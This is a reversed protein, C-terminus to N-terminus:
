YSHYCVTRANLHSNQTIMYPVKLNSTGSFVGNTQASTLKYGLLGIEEQPLLSSTEMALNRCAAVLIYYLITLILKFQKSIYAKLIAQQASININLNRKKGPTEIAM